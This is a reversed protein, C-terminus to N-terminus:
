NSAAEASSVIIREDSGGFTISVFERGEGSTRTSFTTSKARGAAKETHAATKAVVKGAKLLSLEKTEENFKVDYNGKKLVTGNVTIDSVFTVTDKKIKAIAVLNTMAFIVFAVAIRGVLSKM